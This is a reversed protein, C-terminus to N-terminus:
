FLIDNGKNWEVFKYPGTGIPNASFDNGEDILSKPLILNYHYALDYLLNPQPGNTTIKVTKGDVAEVKEMGATYTASAEFTKAYEISAVVDDATLEDGNHFKVGEKLIFTWETDSDQTYSEALDCVPALTEMDIRILGNYTLLNMQVGMLSDHDCTSLYDPEETLAVKLSDKGSGDSAEACGAFIGVSMALALSISLAKRMWKKRM